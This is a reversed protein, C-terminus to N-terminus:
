LCFRCTRRCRRDRVPRRRQRAGRYWRGPMMTPQSHRLKSQAKGRPISSRACSRAYCRSELHLQTQPHSSPARIELSHRTPSPGPRHRPRPIEVVAPSPIWAATDTAISLPQVSLREARRAGLHPVHRSGVARLPARAQASSERLPSPSTAIPRRHSGPGECSGFRPLDMTDGVFHLRAGTKSPREKCALM